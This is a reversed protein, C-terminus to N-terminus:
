DQTNGDKKDEKFPRGEFFIVDVQAPTLGWADKLAAIEDQGFKAGKYGNLKRSVTERAVGLLEATDSSSMGHDREQQKFAGINIM